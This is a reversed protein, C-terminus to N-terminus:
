NTAANGQYDVYFVVHGGQSVIQFINYRNANPFATAFSQGEYRGVLANSTPNAPNTNENGQYDLNWIATQLVQVSM